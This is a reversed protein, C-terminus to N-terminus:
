ENAPNTLDKVLSCLSAADIPHTVFAKAGWQLAIRRTREDKYVNTLYVIPIDATRQNDRLRHHVEFGSVDPLQIDLLILDPREMAALLGDEGNAAEKVAFGAHKLVHAVAYRNIENDDITLVVPKHGPPVSLLERIRDLLIQPNFPKALVDLDFGRGRAQDMVEPCVGIHGSILLVRCAPFTARIRLAAEVGNLGPMVIDTLLFDPHFEAALSIAAEGNNAIATEYGQNDLIAKLTRLITPEDDVILIRRKRERTDM